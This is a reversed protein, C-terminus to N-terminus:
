EGYNGWGNAGTMYDSKASYPNSGLRMVELQQDFTLSTNQPQQAQGQRLANAMQQPSFGNGTLAQNALQNGYQMAQQTQASQNNQMMTAPMGGLEIMKMYDM